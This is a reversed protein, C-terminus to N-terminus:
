KYLRASGRIGDITDMKYILLKIFQSMVTENKIILYIDWKDKISLTICNWAFFPADLALDAKEM